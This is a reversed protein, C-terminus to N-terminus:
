LGELSLGVLGLLEELMDDALQVLGTVGCM